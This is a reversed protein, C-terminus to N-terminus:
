AMGWQEAGQLFGKKMKETPEHYKFLGLLWTFGWTVPFLSVGKFLTSLLGWSSSLQWGWSQAQSSWPSGGWLLPRLKLMHWLFVWPKPWIIYIPLARDPGYLGFSRGGWLSPKTKFFHTTIFLEFSVLTGQLERMGERGESQGEHLGGRDGAGRCASCHPWPAPAQEQPAPFGLTTLSDADWALLWSIIFNWPPVFDRHWGQKKYPKSYRRSAAPM